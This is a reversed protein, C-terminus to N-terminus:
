LWKSELCKRLWMRARYLMVWSNTASINLDKCIEDTTRGDIERMMFAKAQREPLEGLCSYLVDIFEKQEYLKTPNITWKAPRTQWGGANNFSADIPDNVAADSLSEIKDSTQERVRKRIHDVLKHKLISILWTRASSRGQFNKRASLAALFTEQVLDEAIAPEKVRSLAFRYLFGGYQDVWSEPDDIETRKEIKNPGM